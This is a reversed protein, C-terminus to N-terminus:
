TEDHIEPLIFKDPDSEEIEEESLEILKIHQGVAYKKGCKPCQFYYFFTTDVHSDCGCKCHIDVCVDTGKWQIWGHSINKVDFDRGYVRDYFDKM